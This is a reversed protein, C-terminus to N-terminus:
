VRLIRYTNMEGEEMLQIKTGNIETKQLKFRMYTINKMKIARIREAFIIRKRM